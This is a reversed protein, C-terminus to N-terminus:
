ILMVKIEQSNSIERKDLFFIRKDTGQMRM